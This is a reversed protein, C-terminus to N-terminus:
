WRPPCVVDSVYVSKKKLALCFPAPSCPLSLKSQRMKMTRFYQKREVQSAILRMCYGSLLFGTKKIYAITRIREHRQNQLCLPLFTPACSRIFPHCIPGSSFSSGHDCKTGYVTCHTAPDGLLHIGNSASPAFIINRVNIRDKVTIKQFGFNNLQRRFSSLNAHRFFRPLVKAAFTDPKELILKGTPSRFLLLLTQWARYM